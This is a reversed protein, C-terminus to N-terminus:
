HTEHAPDAYVDIESYFAHHPPKRAHVESVTPQVDFRLYRYTGLDGHAATISCGQQAPREIPRDVEFFADSDVRAIRVWGVDGVTDDVPPEAEGVFGYLTFKQVARLRNEPVAGNQHWTYTNVKAVPIAQGLDLIITGVTNDAFFVSDRPADAQQQGRGDILVDVPASGGISRLLLRGGAVRIRSRGQRTDAYDTASPPEITAFQFAPTEDGREIKVLV